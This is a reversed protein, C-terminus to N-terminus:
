CTGGTLIGDTFILTQTVAITCTHTIGASGGANFGSAKITGSFDGSTGNGVGLVGASIRSINTDITSLSSAVSNTSFGYSGTAGPVLVAGSAQPVWFVGGVNLSTKNPALFLTGSQTDGFDAFQVGNASFLLTGAGTSFLGTQGAGVVVGPAAASGASFTAKSNFISTGTVALANTGITAGGLALSTGAAVGLSPTILAANTTGVLAGTGNLASGLGGIINAGTTITSPAAGAGGGIVLSNAALAASSAWTTGSAFYPVGGSTGAVTLVLTGSSTIPSGGVSIIGGTFTQAVSNVTGTGSTITQCGVIGSNNYLFQGNSCTGGTIITTGPIISSSGPGPGPGPGYSITQAFAFVPLLTAALFSCSFKM